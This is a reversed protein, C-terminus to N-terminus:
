SRMGTGPPNKRTELTEQYANIAELMAQAVPPKLEDVAASTCPIRTGDRDTANWDVLWMKLKALDFEGLDIYYDPKGEDSERGRIGASRLQEQERYTLEAKIEIWRGGGLDLRRTETSAFWSGDAVPIVPPEMDSIDSLESPISEHHNNSQTKDRVAM